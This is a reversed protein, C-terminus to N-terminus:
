LKELFAELAANVAEPHSLQPAHAAGAITLPETMGELGDILPQARESSIAQDQDGRILTAPCGITHLQGTIDERDLLCQGAPSVPVNTRQQWRQSWHQAQAQDGIIQGALPDTLEPTPGHTDWAAFLGRYDSQEEAPSPGSESAILALARVRSPYAIAARLAIFGGQSHGVLVADDLQLHDLVAVVDRAQDWYSYPTSGHPTEGHGRSDICVVSWRSSFEKVQHTFLTSDMFFGHLFVLAPGEGTVTFHPLSVHQSSSM